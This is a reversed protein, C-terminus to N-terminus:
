RPGVRRGELLRGAARVSARLGEVVERRARRAADEASRAADDARAPGPFPAPPDAAPPTFDGPGALEDLRGRLESLERRATQAAAVEWVLCDELAAVRESLAAVDTALTAPSAATVGREWPEPEEDEALAAFWQTDARPEGQFPDGGGPRRRRPARHTSM